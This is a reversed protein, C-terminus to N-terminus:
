SLGIDVSNSYKQGHLSTLQCFTNVDKARNEDLFGDTMNKM